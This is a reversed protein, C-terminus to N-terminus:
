SGYLLTGFDSLIAENEGAQGSGRRTIREWHHIRTRGQQSKRLQALTTLPLQAVQPQTLPLIQKASNRSGGVQSQMSLGLTSAICLSVLVKM